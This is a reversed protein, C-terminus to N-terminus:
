QPGSPLRCLRLKARSDSALRQSVLSSAALSWPVQASGFWPRRRKLSQASSHHATQDESGPRLGLRQFRDLAVKSQVDAGVEARSLKPGDGDM